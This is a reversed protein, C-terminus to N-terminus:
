RSSDFAFNANVIDEVGSEFDLYLRKDRKAAKGKKRQLAALVNNVFGKRFVKKKKKKKLKIRMTTALFRSFLEQFHERLNTAELKEM